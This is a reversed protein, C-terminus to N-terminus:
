ASHWSSMHPFPHISGCKRSRLMLQLLTIFSLLLHFYVQLIQVTSITIRNHLSIPVVEIRLDLKLKEIRVANEAKLEAVDAEHESTLELRKQELKHEMDSKLKDVSENRRKTEDLELLRGTRIERLQTDIATMEQLGYCSGYKYM